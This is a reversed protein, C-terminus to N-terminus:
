IYIILRTNYFRDREREEKERDRNIELAEFWYVKLIESNFFNEETLM